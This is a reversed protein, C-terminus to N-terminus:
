RRAAALERLSEHKELYMAADARTLLDDLTEDPTHVVAGISTELKYARGDQANFAEMRKSLRMRAVTIDALPMSALVVFEDGGLRVLVDSERFTQKLIRAMDCIAEDGTAHGFRDNIRKLGDLDFFFMVIQQDARRAIKLHHEGVVHFGRRNHLGTLEDIVSLQHNRAVNQELIQRERERESVDRYTWLQGRYVGDGLMPVYDREFVRGDALEVLENSVREHGQLLRDIEAIFQEPEAFRNKVRQALEAGDAGILEHPDNCAGFISCLERNAHQVCRSEDEVLVGTQIHDILTSMQVNNRALEQEQNRHRRDLDHRHLSLAITSKLAALTVPKVLYGYPGSQKVREITSDDAFGTLFVIATGFRERLLAATEVGDLSGKIHIDMLALDPAKKAAHALAEAGSAAVAYADYGMDGLMGRLDAAVVLEDEVILISRLPASLVVLDQVDSTV